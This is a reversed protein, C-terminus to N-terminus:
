IRNQIISTQKLDTKFSPFLIRRSTFHYKFYNTFVDLLKNTTILPTWYPLKSHLYRFFTEKTIRLLMLFFHLSIM